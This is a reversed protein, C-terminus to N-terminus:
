LVASTVVNSSFDRDVTNCHDSSHLRCSCGAHQNVKSIPRRLRITKSTKGVNTVTVNTRYVQGVKVGTFVVPTPDVRVGEVGAAAAM